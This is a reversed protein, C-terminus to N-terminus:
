LIDVSNYKSGFNLLNENNMIFDNREDFPLLKKSQYSLLLQFNLTRDICGNPCAFHEFILIQDVPNQYDRNTVHGEWNCYVHQM